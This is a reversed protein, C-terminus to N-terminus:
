IKFKIFIQGTTVPIIFSLSLPLPKNNTIYNVIIWQKCFLLKCILKSRKHITPWLHWTTQVGQWTKTEMWYGRYVLGPFFQSRLIRSGSSCKAFEGFQPVNEAIEQVNQIEICSFQRKSHFDYTFHELTAEKSVNRSLHEVYQIIKFIFNRFM